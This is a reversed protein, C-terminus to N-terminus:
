AEKVIIEVNVMDINSGKMRGKSSRREYVPGRHAAAHAVVLHEVEMDLDEANAEANVILKLIEKCAKQPFAGSVGGKRHPMKVRVVKKGRIARCVEMAHKPSINLMSGYAKAGEIGQACYKNRAM